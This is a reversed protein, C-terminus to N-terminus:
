DHKNQTSEKHRECRTKTSQMYPIALVTKNIIWVQYDTLVKPECMYYKKQQKSQENDIKREERERKKMKKGAMM